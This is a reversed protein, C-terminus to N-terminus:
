SPKALEILEAPECDLALCIRAIMDRSPNKLGNAIMSLAGQSCGMKEALTTMTISRQMCLEKIKFKVLTGHESMTTPM